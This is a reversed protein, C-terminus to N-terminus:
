RTRARRRLARRALLLALGGVLPLAAPSPAGAVHCGCRTAGGSAPADALVPPGAQTPPREPAPAPDCDWGEKKGFGCTEVLSGDARHASLTFADATVRAAIFHRATELKRTTALKAKVAYGPAGGGGTVVYRTGESEGREYLHDHGAAVLDVKHKRLLGVVGADHLPRNGGHPGSSWPGHHMVAVRWKLGPEAVARELAASLWAKEKGDAWSDMANVLFFRANGWRFTGHLLPREGPKAREDPPFYRLFLTADRDTLEHNGVAAFLPRDRLLPTEIDFFEQWEAAIEGNAVLDGTNIMFSAPHSQMARVVEAHATADSRTDGYLLFRFEAAEGERPATTFTGTKRAGGARVTYAYRRGPELDALAFTHFATADPSPPPRPGADGDLTMAVPQPPDVEVGIVATTSGLRQLFPGKVIPSLLSARAAGAPHLMGLMALALPLLPTRGLGAIWARNM